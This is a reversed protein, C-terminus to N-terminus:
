SQQNKEGAKILPLLRWGRHRPFPISEAAQYVVVSAKDCVRREPHFLLLM